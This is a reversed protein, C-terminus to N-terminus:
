KVFEAVGAEVLKQAEAPPLKAINGADVFGRMGFGSHDKVFRIAVKIVNPIERLSNLASNDADIQARKAADLAAANAAPNLNALQLFQERINAPCEKPPGDFWFVQGDVRKIVRVLGSGMVTASWEVGTANPPVTDYQTPKRMADEEQIHRLWANTPDPKNRDPVPVAVAQGSAILVQAIHAPLNTTTGRLSPDPVFKTYTIKM